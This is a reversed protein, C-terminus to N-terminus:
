PVWHLEIVDEGVAMALMDETDADVTIEASGSDDVFPEAPDGCLLDVTDVVLDVVPVVILADYSVSIDQPLESGIYQGADVTILSSMIYGDCGDFAGTVREEMEGSIAGDEDIRLEIFNAEVVKNTVMADSALDVSFAGVYTGPGIAPAGEESEDADAEDGDCRSVAASVAAASRRQVSRSVARLAAGKLENRGVRLLLRRAAGGGLTGGSVVIDLAGDGFARALRRGGPGFKHWVRTLFGRRDGRIHRYERIRAKLRSREAAYVGALTERECEHADGRLERMALRYAAELQRLEAKALNLQRTAHAVHAKRQAAAAAKADGAANADADAKSAARSGSMMDLADAYADTASGALAPTALAVLLLLTLLPALRAM